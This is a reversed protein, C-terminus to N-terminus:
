TILNHDHSQITIMHDLVTKTKQRELTLAQTYILKSM